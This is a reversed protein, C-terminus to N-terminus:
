NLCFHEIIFFNWKELGYEYGWTQDEHGDLREYNKGTNPYHRSHFLNSEM